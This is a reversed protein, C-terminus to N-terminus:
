LTHDFVQGPVMPWFAQVTGEMSDLGAHNDFSWYLVPDPGSWGVPPVWPVPSYVLVYLDM